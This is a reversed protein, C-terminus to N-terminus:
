HSLRDWRQSVYEQDILERIDDSRLRTFSRSFGAYEGVLHECFQFVDLVAGTHRAHVRTMM